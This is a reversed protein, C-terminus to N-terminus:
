VGQVDKYYGKSDLQEFIEQSIEYNIGQSYGMFEDYRSAEYFVIALTNLFSNTARKNYKTTASINVEYEGIKVKM